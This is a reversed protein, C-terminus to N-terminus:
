WKRVDRDWAAFRAALRTVLEPHEVALDHSEVLDAIVDYLQWPADDANRVIKYRGARLSSM